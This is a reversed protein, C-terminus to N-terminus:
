VLYLESFGKFPIFFKQRTRKLSKSEPSVLWWTFLGTIRFDSYHVLQMYISWGVTEASSGVAKWGHTLTMTPKQGLLICGWSVDPWFQM